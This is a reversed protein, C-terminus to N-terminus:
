HRVGVRGIRILSRDCQHTSNPAIALLREVAARCEASRGLQSSAAALVLLTNDWGPNLAMSKGAMELAEEARGSLLHAMALGTVLDRPIWM